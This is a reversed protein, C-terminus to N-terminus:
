YCGQRLLNAIEASTQSLLNEVVAKAQKGGYALRDSSNIWHPRGVLVNVQKYVVMPHFGEKKFM